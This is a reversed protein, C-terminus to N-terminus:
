EHQQNSRIRICTPCPFISFLNGINDGTPQHFAVQRSNAVGSLGNDRIMSTMFVTHMPREALFDLVEAEEEQCLEEVTCTEPATAFNQFKAEAEMSIDHLKNTAALQADLFRQESKRLAEDSKSKAEVLDAVNKTPDVVQGGFRDVGIGPQGPEGRTDASTAM